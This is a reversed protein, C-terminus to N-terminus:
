TYIPLIYKLETTNIANNGFYLNIFETTRKDLFSDILKKINHGGTICLLHNEILYQTENVYCFSFAYKGTGYGRNVVICEGHQGNKNIFNKKQFNKYKTIGLHGDVIDSSYILRTKTNDETLIDKVQNWIVTGNKVDFMLDNLSHSNTYLKKLKIINEPTNLAIDNIEFRSNGAIERSNQLILTITDQDTDLYLANKDHETISIIKYQKSIHQRLKNYYISNLFSKPLIYCLIGDQALLSLARVMFLLFINPRGEFYVYYNQNVSTKPIVYFPPNGVILDYKEGNEFNYTLFDSNYLHINKSQINKIREFITTDKEIGKITVNNFVSDVYQVFECSGCSPELITKIPKGLSLVIDISSKIISRPTFFIGNEKKHNKSLEKTLDCSLQSFNM